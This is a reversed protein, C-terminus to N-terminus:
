NSFNYMVVIKGTIKYPHSIRDSVALSSRLSLTNSFLTNLLINPGLLSSTVPSPSFKMIFFQVGWGINHPHYFRSFNSPRPMYRPHPLLSAHIPNQHPFRLSLSWHPSGPTPPFIINLRIKMFYSTPTHVPNFQSLVSVPPPCKHIRYYVKPNLLVPPIEQSAVFRNAEWPSQEM